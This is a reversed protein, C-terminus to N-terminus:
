RIATSLPQRLPEQRTGTSCHSPGTAEEGPTRSTSRETSSGTAATVQSPFVRDLLRNFQAEFPHGAAQVALHSIADVIPIAFPIVFDPLSNLKAAAQGLVGWSKEDLTQPVFELIVTLGDVTRAVRQGGRTLLVSPAHGYGRDAVFDLVVLQDEDRVDPRPMRDSKVVYDGQDIHIRVVQRTEFGALHEGVVVGTLPWMDVLARIDM